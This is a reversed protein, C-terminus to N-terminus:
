ARAAREILDGFGAGLLDDRLRECQRADLRGRPPLCAGCDVGSWVLIQKVAPFLPFQLAIRIFTNARQQAARAEDWRGATAAAYIKVFLEPLVNYFTGIGGNAGMLLGAALVEDRGNFVSRGARALNAMRYLDFDTFKVGIVNPLSCLTELQEATAIAPSIEPFYYVLLPLASTRALSEYYRVLDAFSFQASTPPLSSIAHAGAKAAHSSLAIAETVSAAGVHVIVHRDRPTCAMATEVISQRQERSQLMGEGTSGCLYIGHAGAAYLRGLLQELVAPVFRGADDFPTIAAPLIGQM